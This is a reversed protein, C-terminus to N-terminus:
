EQLMKVNQISSEIFTKVSQPLAKYEQNSKSKVKYSRMFNSQIVSNFRESDMSAWERLTSPNGVLQKIDDPLKEFETASNYNSNSVARAVLNWAEMETMGQPESLKMLRNRIVGVPPMFRNNDTAIHALVANSVEQYTADALVSTWIKVLTDLQAEDYSKFSDPYNVQLVAMIKMTELKNM